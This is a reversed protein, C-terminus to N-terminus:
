DCSCMEQGPNKSLILALSMNRVYVKVYELHHILYDIIILVAVIIFLFIILMNSGDSDNAGVLQCNGNFRSYSKGKFLLSLCVLKKLKIISGCLFFYM